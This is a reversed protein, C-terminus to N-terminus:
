KRRYKMFWGYAYAGGVMVSYHVLWPFKFYEQGETGFMVCCLVGVTAVALKLSDLVEKLMEKLVEKFRNSTGTV